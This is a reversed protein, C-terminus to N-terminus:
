GNEITVLKPRWYQVFGGGPAPESTSNKTVNVLLVLEQNMGKTNVVVLVFQNNKAPIYYEDTFYGIRTNSFEPPANLARIDV